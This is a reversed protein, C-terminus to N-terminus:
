QEPLNSYPHNFQYINLYDQQLLSKFYHLNQLVVKLKQNKERFTGFNWKGQGNNGSITSNNRFHLARIM